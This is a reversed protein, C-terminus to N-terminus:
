NFKTKNDRSLGLCNDCNGCKDESKKISLNGTEFYHEILAQRCIKTNSIYKQFMNLLKVRREANDGKSILFKNTSYDTDKYFMVVSSPMGDRGARGIEQYYTELNCPSGYNIVKRIDPKDIGM